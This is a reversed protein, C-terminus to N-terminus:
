EYPWGRSFTDQELKTPEENSNQTTVRIREYPYRRDVTLNSFTPHMAKDKRRTATLLRGKWRHRDAILALIGKDQDMLQEYRYALSEPPMNGRRFCLKYAAVITTWERVQVDNGLTGIEYQRAIYSAVEASAQTIVEDVVDDNTESDHDNDSFANVGIASLLRELEETTTYQATM